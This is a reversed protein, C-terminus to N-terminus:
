SGVGIGLHPIGDDDPTHASDDGRLVEGIKGGDESSTMVPQQNAHKIALLVGDRLGRLRVSKIQLVRTERDAEEIQRELDRLLPAMDVTM